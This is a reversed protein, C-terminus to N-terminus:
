KSCVWYAQSTGYERVVYRCEAKSLQVVPVKGGGKLLASCESAGYCLVNAVPRKQPSQTACSCLLLLGLIKLKVSM